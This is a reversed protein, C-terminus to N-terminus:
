PDFNKQLLKFLSVPGSIDQINKAAMEKIVHVIAPLMHDPVPHDGYEKKMEALMCGYALASFSDEVGLAAFVDSVLLCGNMQFKKSSIHFKKGKHGLCTPWKFLFPVLDERCEFAVLNPEVFRDGVFICPFGKAMSKLDLPGNKREWERKLVGYFETLKALYEEDKGKSGLGNTGIKANYVRGLYDLQNIMIGTDPADGWKMAEVLKGVITGAEPSWKLISKLGCTFWMHEILAVGDPRELLFEDTCKWPLYPEPPDSIVPVWHLSRLKSFLESAGEERVCLEIDRNLLSLLNQARQYVKGGQM